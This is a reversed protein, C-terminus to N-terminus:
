IVAVDWIALTKVSARNRNNESWSDSPEEHLLFRVGKILQLGCLQDTLTMLCMKLLPISANM